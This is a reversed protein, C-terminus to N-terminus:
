IEWGLKAPPVIFSCTVGHEKLQAVMKMYGATSQANIFAATLSGFEVPYDYYDDALHNPDRGEWPRYGDLGLFILHKFGLLGSIQAALFVATGSGALATLGKPWYVAADQLKGNTNFMRHVSFYTVNDGKIENEWDKRIYCPIGLNVSEMVSQFRSQPNDFPASGFVYHTPRWTTRPYIKSVFNMGFSPCSFSELLAPTASPGNGVIVMSNPPM